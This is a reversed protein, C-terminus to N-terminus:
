RAKSAHVDGPQDRVVGIKGLGPPEGPAIERSRAPTGGGKDPLAAGGDDVDAPPELRSGSALRLYAVTTVTAGAGVILFASRPTGVAVLIGGLLLGIGPCLAGLSEVAGMLQGHLRQPTLRQVASLFSAWQVGNGIGGVLGAVCAVALSPAAAFGLYALGVMLTGMSLMAGLPKQVARAFALSGLVVGLGWVTLLLGYGRDGALLTVKAYPVEISGDSALFVLAFGQLALLARLTPADNVHDWAARLRARVSGEEANEVRPSVDLLMAGAILFSAADILLATPGGASAVLAGALVPGVVFTASFAINLAANAKREATQVDDGTARGGTSEAARAEAQERAERAAEARLLASAALAATGDIAVLVLVAPLWFNWLLVALAVTALAEFTYLASLKARRQSTEVRAVLTPVLFAPLAQGVVLLAAVALASRTQEFVALSLAVYGFWTGLRNVTYAAIIRPLRTSSPASRVSPV